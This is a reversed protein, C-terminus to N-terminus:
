AARDNGHKALHATMLSPHSNQSEPLGLFLEVLAADWQIGRGKTLNARAEAISMARRYPRDTTMADFADAISVIRASEPIASGKLGDPYGEGSWHEHHHRIAPCLWYASRLPRCIEEGLVSHKKMAEYEKPTLRGRKLLIADPIGIKGIDHVMGARSIMAQADGSWGCAAAIARAFEAVRSTHQDTNFDRAEVARAVAFIVSESDDLQDALRKTRTLSRVRALLETAEAPKTLFDDAGADIAKIRAGVDDLSTVVVIPLLRTTSNSRIQRSTEFGDMGPMMLDLLVVDVAERALLQLAEEGGVATFVTLGARKLELALADRNARTDDVVLVRGPLGEEKV